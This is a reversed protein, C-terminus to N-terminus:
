LMAASRGSGRFVSINDKLLSQCSCIYFVINFRFCNRITLHERSCTFPDEVRASTSEM